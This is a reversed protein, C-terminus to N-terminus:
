EKKLIHMSVEDIRSIEEESLALALAGANVRAHEPKTAGPIAVVADGHRRILWALAVESVSCDHAAAATKLEEILPKTKLLGQPSFAKSRRRIGKLKDLLDPQDHFKGSLIGQALPSYAIITIGLDRAAELVGNTEIGRDLLNYRMQNSALVLGRKRLAASAQEMQKRSFNSVGVAKIKREAALDAMEEMQKPISSFSMPVHVQYLDIPYAGLAATRKGITRKISGAFRFYALWKTAIVVSGPVVGLRALASSLARESAGNGYAEATDFWNIGGALSIDVIEKMTEQPLAPWVFKSFGVGDSFQWCGLGIPTIKIDTKGLPILKM